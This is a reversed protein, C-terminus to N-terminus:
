AARRGVLPLGTSPDVAAAVVGARADERRHYQLSMAVIHPIAARTMYAVNGYRVELYWLFPEDGAVWEAFRECFGELDDGAVGEWVNIGVGPSDFALQVIRNGQDPRAIAIAKDTGEVPVESEIANPEHTM